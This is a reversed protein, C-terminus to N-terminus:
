ATRSWRPALGAKVPKRVGPVAVFAGEGTLLLFGEQSLASLVADCTAQDMQWLRCAQARTLRLGPMELYEGRIRTILAEPAPKAPEHEPMIM